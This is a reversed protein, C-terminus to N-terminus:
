PRSSGRDERATSGSGGKRGGGSGGGGGGVVEVRGGPRLQGQGEVVVREGGELGKEIMAVEGTILGVTVPMMKATKDDGVTYVFAGQPGRQVAVAPIVLADTRTEVLMRAKVFANPWLVRSPNPVMAKLRLTATSQNIQNDLVAVKGTALKQTGDRNYNYDTVDGAQM